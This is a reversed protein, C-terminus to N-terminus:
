DANSTAPIDPDLPLSPACDARPPLSPDRLSRDDGLPPVAAPLQPDHIDPGRREPPPRLTAPWCCSRARWSASRAAVASFVPAAVRFSGAFSGRAEVVSASARIIFIASPPKRGAQSAPFRPDFIHIHSDCANDPAKIKPAATGASFPVRQDAYGLRVRALNIAAAALLGAGGLFVRRGIKIDNM